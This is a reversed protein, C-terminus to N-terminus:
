LKLVAGLSWQWNRDRTLPFQGTLVPSIIPINLDSRGYVSWKATANYAAKFSAGQKGDLRFEAQDVKPDRDMDAVYLYVYLRGTGSFVMKKYPFIVSLSHLTSVLPNTRDGSKDSRSGYWGGYFGHNFSLQLAKWQRKYSLSGHFSAYKNQRQKGARGSTPLSVGLGGKIKWGKFETLSRNGALSIDTLGFFSPDTVRSFPYFYAGEVSVSLISFDYSFRGRNSWRSKSVWHVGRSYTSNWSFNWKKDANDVVPQSTKEQSWVASSVFILSMLVFLVRM